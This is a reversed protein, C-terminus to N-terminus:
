LQEQHIPDTEPILGPMVATAEATIIEDPSDAIIELLSIATEAQFDM